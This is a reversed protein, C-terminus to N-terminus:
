LKNAFKTALHTVCIKSYKIKPSVKKERLILKLMNKNQLM